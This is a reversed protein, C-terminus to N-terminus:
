PPELDQLPSTSKRTDIPHPRTRPMMENELTSASHRSHGGKAKPYGKVLPRIVGELKLFIDRFFFDVFHNFTHEEHWSVFMALWPYCTSVLVVTSARTTITISWRHQASLDISTHCEYDTPKYLCILQKMSSNRAYLEYPTRIAYMLGDTHSIHSTSTSSETLASHGDIIEHRREWFSELWCQYQGIWRQCHQTRTYCWTLYNVKQNCHHGILHIRGM